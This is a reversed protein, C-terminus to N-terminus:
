VHASTGNWNIDAGAWKTHILNELPPSNYEEVPVQNRTDITVITANTQTVTSSFYHLDFRNEAHYDRILDRNPNFLLGYADNCRTVWIPLSPTKLRSGVVGPGGGGGGEARAWVLLGIESRTLIGTKPKAMTDETGEYIIGNHLYPTARGTLVLTVVCPHITANTEILPHEESGMDEQLKTFGRSLVVSYLLLLMGNGDESLFEFLYKKLNFTLEDQKKFDFTNIRETCGDAQFEPNETLYTNEQTLCLVVHQRDGARWLIDSLAGVLAEEQMKTSARLLSTPDTNARPGRRTFLLHKLIYGQVGHGPRSVTRQMKLSYGQPTDADSFCFSQGLWENLAPVLMDGGNGFIQKRLALATELTIPQGGLVPVKQVSSKPKTPYLVREGIYKPPKVYFPAVGLFYPPRRRWRSATERM